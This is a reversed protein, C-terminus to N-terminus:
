LRYLEAANRWLVRERAQVSLGKFCHDITESTRPWTSNALPLNASWLIIRASTITVARGSRRANFFCQRKFMQLPTLDYRARCATMNSSTIPGNWIFCAGASASEALGLAVEHRLL